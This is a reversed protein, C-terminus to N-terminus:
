KTVPLGAEAENGLAADSAALTVNATGIVASDHRAEVVVTEASEAEGDALATVAATVAVEGAPLILTYPSTLPQNNNDAVRYDAAQSDGSFDLTIPQNQAFVGGEVNVAIAATEGEAIEAPAALVTFTAADNDTVTVRALRASGVTYDTSVDPLLWATVTSPDEVVADDDTPARLVESSEGVGFTVTLYEYNGAAPRRRSLMSGTESLRVMVALAESTAGTRELTFVVETGETVSTVSGVALSVEPLPAPAQQAHSLGAGLMGALLFIRSILHPWWVVRGCWGSNADRNTGHGTLRCM